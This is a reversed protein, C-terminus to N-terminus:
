ASLNERRVQAKAVFEVFFAAFIGFILGGFLALLVILMRKPKIHHDPPLAQQDVRLVRIADPNVHIAELRALREQLDRLGEIFADDNKRQRLANIEAQLARAGKMYLPLEGTSVSVANAGARVTLGHNGEVHLAKAITLAEDLRNIQDMRRQLALKRKGAINEQITKKSLAIREEINRLLNRVTQQEALAVLGNVWEATLGADKGEMAVVVFPPKEGETVIVHAHFQKQFAKEVGVDRTGDGMLVGIMQHKEFYQRQLSISKLNGVATDFVDKPTYNQMNLNQMNLNQMNLNQM